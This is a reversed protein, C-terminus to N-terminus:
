PKGWEMDNALDVADAALNKPDNMEHSCPVCYALDGDEDAYAFDELDGIHGCNICSEQNEVLGDSSKVAALRQALRLAENLLAEQVAAKASNFDTWAYTRVNGYEISKLEPNVLPSMFFKAHNAIISNALDGLDYLVSIGNSMKLPKAEIAHIAPEEMLCERSYVYLTTTSM